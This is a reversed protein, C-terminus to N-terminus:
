PEQLANIQRAVAHVQDFTLTVYVAGFYNQKVYIEIEKDKENINIDEDKAEYWESM